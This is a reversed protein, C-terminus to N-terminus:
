ARVPIWLPFTIKPFLISILGMVMNLHGLSSIVLNPRNKALIKIIPVMSNLVRSKNLYITKIGDVSYKSDKEFGIVILVVHFKDKNLNQSVFSIVREAGGAYLTPLIFFVKAKKNKM